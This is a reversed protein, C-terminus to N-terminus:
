EEESRQLRKITLYCNFAHTTAVCSARVLLADGLTESIVTQGKRVKPRTPVNRRLCKLGNNPQFRSVLSRSITRIRQPSTGKQYQQLIGSRTKALEAFGTQSSNLSGTARGPSRM